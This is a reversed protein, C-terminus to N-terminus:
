YILDICRGFCFSHVYRCSVVSCRRQSGLGLESFTGPIIPSCDNGVVCFCNSDPLKIEYTDERVTVVVSRRTSVDEDQASLTVTTEQSALAKLELVRAFEPRPIWQDTDTFM